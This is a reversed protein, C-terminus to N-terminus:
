VGKTQGGALEETEAGLVHEVRRQSRSGWRMGLSMEAKFGKKIDNVWWQLRRFSPGEKLCGKKPEGQRPRFDPEAQHLLPTQTDTLRVSVKRDPNYAETVCVSDEMQTTLKQHVCLKKKCVSLCM